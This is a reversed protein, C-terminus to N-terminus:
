RGTTALALQALQQALKRRRPDTVAGPHHAGPRGVMSAGQQAQGAGAPADQDLLLMRATVYAQDSLHYMGFHNPSLPNWAADPGVPYDAMGDLRAATPTVLGDLGRSHISAYRVPGHMRLRQDLVALRTVIRSGRMLQDTSEPLAKGLLPIGRFADVAISM